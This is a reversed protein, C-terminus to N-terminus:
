PRNQGPWSGIGKPGIKPYDGPGPQSVCSARWLSVWCGAQGWGWGRGLEPCGIGLVVSIKARRLFLWQQGLIALGSIRCFAFALVKLSHSQTKLGPRRKRGFVTIDLHFSNMEAPGHTERQSKEWSGPWCGSLFQKSGPKAPFCLRQSGSCPPCESWPAQAELGLVELFHPKNLRRRRSLNLPFIQGLNSIANRDPTWLEQTQFSIADMNGAKVEPVEQM